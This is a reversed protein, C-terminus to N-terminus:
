WSAGMSDESFRPDSTIAKLDVFELDSMTMSNLQAFTRQDWAASPEGQVHLDAGNDAVYMGYRKAATAIAKAQPTWDDPIVFSAKLRLLAGFPIAGPDEGGAAHRAPWTYQRAIAADRFSIRLAHRIEGSNAEDVKVLLPTMPLGAADGSHWDKPRLALSKLDWAATTVAYWQGSLPYAFFSEWLRCAGSEVVLVHRDGCTNPDACHGDENLIKSPVPFPFRRQSPPVSECNPQIAYGTGSLVACDSKYPYSPETSVGSTSFDFSVVPWETTAPTGDVINYPIGWYSGYDAPNDNIWWDAHFPVNSGVMAVWEGSKPHAPFRSADDIRTNFIANSPFMECNGLMPAASASQEPFTAPAPAPAPSAVPAPAAIPEPAPLPAPAAVPAPTPAAVPTRGTLKQGSKRAEKKLRRAQERTAKYEMREKAIDSANASAAAVAAGPLASAGAMGLLAAGSFLRTLASLKKAELM